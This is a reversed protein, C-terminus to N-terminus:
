IVHLKHPLNNVVIFENRAKVADEQTLCVKSFLNKGEFNVRAVWRQHSKSWNIGTYANNGKGSNTQNALQVSQTTWRLNGKEYGKNADIRDISLNHPDYNPLSILYDKFDDFNRLNPALKIGKAGYNKYSAHKPNTCRQTITLWRSYLPHLENGYRKKTM